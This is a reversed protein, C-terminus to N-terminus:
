RVDRPFIDQKIRLRYFLTPYTTWQPHQFYFSDDTIAISKLPFWTPNILNTTAEVVVVQNSAGTIVFGFTNARVGVDTINPRTELIWLKTPRGGFTPGWGTTGALYYVTMNNFGDFLSSQSGSPITLTPSNGLFIVEKLRTCSNFAGDGINTVSNPISISALSVCSHFMGNGINVVSKPITIRLLKACGSFAYEGINTVSDPITISALQVCDSFADDGISTVSNPINIKTLSVCSGFAGVGLRTVTLGNITDPISVAADSGTCQTITITEDNTTYNYDEAQVTVGLTLLPLVLVRLSALSVAFSALRTKFGRQARSFCNLM